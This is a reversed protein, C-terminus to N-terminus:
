FPEGFQVLVHWLCKLEQLVSEYSGRSSWKSPDSKLSKAARGIALADIYDESAIQQALSPMAPGRFDDPVQAVALRFGCHWYLDVSYKECLKEFSQELSTERFCADAVLAGADRMLSVDGHVQSEIYHNLNRGAQANTTIDLPERLRNRLHSVLENPTIDHHGLAFRREFCETMLAAFVPEFVNLTGKEIPDRHSDM